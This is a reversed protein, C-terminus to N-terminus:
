VVYATVPPNTGSLQTDAWPPESYLDAPRVKTDDLTHTKAGGKNVIRERIEERM